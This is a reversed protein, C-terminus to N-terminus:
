HEPARGLLLGRPDVVRRLLDLEEATPEPTAPADELDPLAFGTVGALEGRREERHISRLRIRGAEKDFDFICEPTVVWEPGGEPIGLAARGALGGPYGVGSVYDVKEVLVRATHHPLMVYERRFITMHEPQLIPGVLRVKPRAHDGIVVSNLSGTVDLQVGSSFGFDVHGRKFSFQGPYRVTQAECPLDLLTSDFEQDPLAALSALDPNHSWGALLITLNPAHTLKAFMMAALPISTGYLMAAAGTVLGTFGVEHDAFSKALAITIIEPITAASM